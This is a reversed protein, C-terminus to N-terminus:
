ISPQRLLARAEDRTLRGDRDTDLQDFSEILRHMRAGLAEAKSWTGDGDRDAAHFLADFQAVPQPTPPAVDEAASRALALGAGLLTGALM